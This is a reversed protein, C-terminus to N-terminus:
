YELYMFATNGSPVFLSGKINNSHNQCTVLQNPLAKWVFQTDISTDEFRFLYSEDIDTPLGSFRAWDFITESVNKIHIRLYAFTNTKINKIVYEDAKVEEYTLNIRAYNSDDYAM